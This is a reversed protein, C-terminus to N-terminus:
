IKVLIMSRRYITFTNTNTKFSTTIVDSGNMQVVAQTHFSRRMNKIGAEFRQFNLQFQQSEGRYQYGYATAGDVIVAWGCESM